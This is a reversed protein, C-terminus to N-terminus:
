NLPGSHTTEAAETALWGRESAPLDWNAAAALRDLRGAWWHLQSRDFRVQLSPETSRELMFLVGFRGDSATTIGLATVLQGLTEAEVETVTVAAIDRSRAAAAETLNRHEMHLAQERVAPQSIGRALTSSRGLL